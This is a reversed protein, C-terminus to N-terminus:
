VTGKTTYPGLKPSRSELDERPDPFYAGNENMEFAILAGDLCANPLQLFGNPAPLVSKLNYM